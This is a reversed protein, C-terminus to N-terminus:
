MCKKRNKAIYMVILNLKKSNFFFEILINM